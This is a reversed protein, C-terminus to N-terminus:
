GHKGLNAHEMGSGEEAVTMTVPPLFMRGATSVTDLHLLTPQSSSQVTIYQLASYQETSYQVASYQETSYQEAITDMDLYPLAPQSSSKGASM